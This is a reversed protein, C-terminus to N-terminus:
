AAANGLGYLGTLRGPKITKQLCFLMLEIQSGQDKKM